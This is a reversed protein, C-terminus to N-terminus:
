KYNFNSLLFDSIGELLENLSLLLQLYLMIIMHHGSVEIIIIHHIYYMYFDENSVM